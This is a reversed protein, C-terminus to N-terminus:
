AYSIVSLTAKEGEAVHTIYVVGLADDFAMVATYHTIAVSGTDLRHFTTHPNAGPHIVYRVIGLGIEPRVYQQRSAVDIVVACQGSAAGVALAAMDTFHEYFAPAGLTLPPGAAAAAATAPWFHVSRILQGPFPLTQSTRRMVGFVGYTPSFLQPASLSICHTEAGPISSPFPITWQHIGCSCSTDVCVSLVTSPDDLDQGNIYFHGRHLVCSPLSGVRLGLPIHHVINDDFECYVLVSLQDIYSTFVMGIRTDDLAVKPISIPAYDASRMENSYVTSLTVENGLRYDVKIGLLGLHLRSKYSLGILCYGPFRSPTCREMSYGADADQHNIVALRAGSITHWCALRKNSNTILVNTGPIVCIQAYDEGLPFTRVRVPVARDLSWIKQLRYAHFALKRLEDRTLSPVDVGAHCPLPQRYVVQIRELTKLWFDKLSPLSRFASCTLFLSTSDELDLHMCIELLIDVPIAAWSM